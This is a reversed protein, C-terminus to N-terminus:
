KASFSLPLNRLSSILRKEPLVTLTTKVPCPWDPHLHLCTLRFRSIDDGACEIAMQVAEDFKEPLEKWSGPKEISAIPLAVQKQVNITAGSRGKKVKLGKETLEVDVEEVDLKKLVALLPHAPVAGEIGKFPNAISCSVEDNYTAIREETFVFCHSQEIIEKSSIGGVLSELKELLESRNIKM